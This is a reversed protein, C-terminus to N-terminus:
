NHGHEGSALERHRLWAPHETGSPSGTSCGAVRSELNRNKVLLSNQYWSVSTAISQRKRKKKELKFANQIGSAYNITHTLSLWETTDSEKHGLPSYGPLSRQGHFEGPLFVPTPSIFWYFRNSKTSLRSYMSVDRKLDKVMMTGNHPCKEIMTARIQHGVRLQPGSNKAKIIIFKLSTWFWFKHFIPILKHLKFYYQKHDHTDKTFEKVSMEYLNCM